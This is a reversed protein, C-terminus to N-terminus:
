FRLEQMEGANMKKRNAKVCKLMDYEELRYISSGRHNKEMFDMLEYYRLSGGEDQAM